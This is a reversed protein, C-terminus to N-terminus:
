AMRQIIDTGVTESRALKAVVGGCLEDQEHRSHEAAGFLIFEKWIVQM